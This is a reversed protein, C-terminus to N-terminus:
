ARPPSVSRLLIFAAGGAALCAGACFLLAVQFGFREVNGDSDLHAGIAAATVASGITGGMTRLLLNFSTASGTEAAPVSGIILNPMSGFTSGAGVATLAVASVLTRVDVPAVVLLLSGMMALASGFVLSFRAGGIAKAWLTIRSGILSGFAIPIMIVGTMTLSLGAGFGTSEPLQALRTVLAATSYLSVGILAAVVDAALVPRQRLMGLQVLPNVAKRQWWAWAACLGIGAGALLLVGNSRWGWANGQTVALLLLTVGSMLLVAGAVDPPPRHERDRPMDPLRKLVAMGVLLAFAAAGAFAVSIGWHDVVFTSIPYSIGAGLATTISLIAVVSAVRGPPLHARAAAITMAVLAVGLGQLGRGVLFLPFAEAFASMLCGAGVLACVAAAVSRRHRGDAVRGLVPTCAAAVLLTLTYSWQAVEVSLGFHVQVLPILPAGLTVVVASILAASVLVPALPLWMWGKSAV